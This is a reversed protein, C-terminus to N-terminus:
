ITLYQELFSISLFDLGMKERERASFADKTEHVVRTTDTLLM